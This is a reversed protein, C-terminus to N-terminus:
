ATSSLTMLLLNVLYEAPERVRVAAALRFAATVTTVRFKSCSSAHAAAAEQIDPGAGSSPYCQYSSKVTVSACRCM